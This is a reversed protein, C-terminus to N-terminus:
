NGNYSGDWKAYPDNSKWILQGWRNFIQLEFSQFDCVHYVQFTNNQENNDPTFSNPIFLDCYCNEMSINITDGLVGCDGSSIVWYTGEENVEIFSTSEGTSWQVNTLFNPINLLLGDERCVTQDEGLDISNANIINVTVTDMDICNDVTVDVSYVGGQTVTYIESATGDQWEYTATTNLVTADLVLTDGLCMSQNAGLDVGIFQYDVQIQDTFQGCQHDILVSYNGAQSVTFTPNSSGDQWVYQNGQLQPDLILVDGECMITDAGLSFVTDVLSVNYHYISDCGSTYVVTDAYWGANTVDQSNLVLTDGLCLSYTVTDVLYGSGGPNLTILTDLQISNGSILNTAEIAFQTTNSVVPTNFYISGCSGAIPGGINVNNTLDVLQYNVDLESFQLEINASDGSCTQHNNVVLELPRCHRYIEQIEEGSLAADYVRLEDISGNFTNTHNPVSSTAGITTIYNITNTFNPVTPFDLTQTISFEACNVYMKVLRNETNNNEVRLAVFIYENTGYFFPSIQYRDGASWGTCNQHKNLENSLGTVAYNNFAWEVISFGMYNNPCQERISFIGMTSSTDNTKIWATITYDSDYVHNPTVTVYDDIGDFNLAQGCMGSTFTAGSNLATQGGAGLNNLNGDFPFYAYLNTTSPTTTTYIDLPTQALVNVGIVHLALFLNFVLCKPAHFIM